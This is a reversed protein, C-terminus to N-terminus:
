AARIDAARAHAELGELRALRAAEGALRAAADRSIDQVVFSTMVSATPVGSCPRAAADTPLVHSPGCVYDGFTEAAYRGVFVTGAAEILPLVADLDEIQLSLHEPGYTNAVEAAEAPSRVFVARAES